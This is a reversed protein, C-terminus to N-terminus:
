IENILKTVKDNIILNILSRILERWHGQIDKMTDISYVVKNNKIVDYSHDTKIKIIYVVCDYYGDWFIDDIVHQMKEQVTM